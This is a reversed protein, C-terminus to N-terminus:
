RGRGRRSGPFADLTITCSFSFPGRTGSFVVVGRVTRRVLHVGVQEPLGTGKHLLVPDAELPVSLRAPRGRRSGRRSARWNPSRRRRSRPRRPPEDVVDGVGQDRSPSPGSFIEGETRHRSSGEEVVGPEVIELVVWLLDEGPWALFFGLRAASSDNRITPSRMTGSPIRGVRTM